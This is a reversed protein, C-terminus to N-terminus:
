WDIELLEEVSLDDSKKQVIYYHELMWEVYEKNNNKKLKEELAGVCRVLRNESIINSQEDEERHRMLQEGNSFQKSNEFPSINLQNELVLLEDLAKEITNM